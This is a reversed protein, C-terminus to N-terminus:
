RQGRLRALEARLKDVEHEALRRTEREALLEKEVLKREHEAVMREHEAVTRARRELALEDALRLREEDATPLLDQGERDRALRLVPGLDSAVIVWWLGLATCEQLTASQPAREVLEGDLSDWVRLPAKVDDPDFRVVEGIGSAQYSELKNQWESDSRDSESVIEVALDPAGRKWNKWSDFDRDKSGLKVFVDPSLCKKPNGADWYVFQDSGVADEARAQELLLYLTTRAHLHRKTESVHEEPREESPFHIARPARVYLRDGYSFAPASATSEHLEM